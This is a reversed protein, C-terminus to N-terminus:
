RNKDLVNEFDSLVIYKADTKGANEYPKTRIEHRSEKFGKEFGKKLRQNVKQFGKVVWHWGKGVKRNEMRLFHINM